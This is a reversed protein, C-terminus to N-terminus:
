NYIQSGSLNSWLYEGPERQGSIHMPTWTFKNEPVDIPRFEKFVGIASASVDDQRLGCLNFDNNFGSPIYPQHAAVIQLSGYGPQFPSLCALAFCSKPVQTLPRIGRVLSQLLCRGICLLVLTSM